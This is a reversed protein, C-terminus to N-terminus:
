YETSYIEYDDDSMATINVAQYNQHTTQQVSYSRIVIEGIDFVSLFESHVEVTQKSDLIQRLLRLEDAPYDDTISGSQVPQVGVVININWDGDCAYEKVTGDRGSVETCVIRKERSVAAVADALEVQVLGNDTQARLTLPCLVYRGEWWSRDTVPQSLERTTVDEGRGQWSVPEGERGKRFSVLRKAMYNAWSAAVMQPSIPLKTM